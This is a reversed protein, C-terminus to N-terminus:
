QSYLVLFSRIRITITNSSAWQEMEAQQYPAIYVRINTQEPNEMSSGMLCQQFVLSVLRTERFSLSCTSNESNSLPSQFVM